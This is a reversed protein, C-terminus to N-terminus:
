QTDILLATCAAPAYVCMSRAYVYELASPELVACILTGSCLKFSLLVYAKFYTHMYRGWQVWQSAGDLVGEVASWLGADGGIDTTHACGDVAFAHILLLTHVDVTLHM